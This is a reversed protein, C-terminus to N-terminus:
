MDVRHPKYGVVQPARELAKEIWGQDRETVAILRLDPDSPFGQFGVAAAEEVTMVQAKTEALVEESLLDDASGGPKLFVTFVIM